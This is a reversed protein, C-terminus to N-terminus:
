TWPPLTVHVRTRGPHSTDLEINGKQLTALMRASYTGLGTGQPKNATTYKNFFLARIDQPVEGSNEIAIRVDESPQLNILLEEGPSSAEVANKVLNAIMSYCLMDEGRILVNEMAPSPTTFKIKLQRAAIAAGLDSLVRNIIRVIDVPKPQLDYIGQEIKFLDFYRNIMNLMSLGAKHITEIKKRPGEAMEQDLLLLESNGLIATLPNKLDHRHVSEVEERLKAAEKLEKNQAELRAQAERLHLHTGVRAKVEMVEFPKIIYDVAGNSFGKIKDDVADMVTLFIVPIDATRPDDKLLKLVAFGDLGPMIIDLLILDPHQKKALSLGEAGNIAVCVKYEDCLVNSLVKVDSPADDIILLRNKM